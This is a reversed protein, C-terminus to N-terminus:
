GSRLSSMWFCIGGTLWWRPRALAAKNRNLLTSRGTLASLLDGAHAAIRVATHPVQVQLPSSGAAAAMEDYLQGWTVSVEDAVFYTRGAAAPREGARILADVLDTVHVLSFAHERPVAHLAVRGSAQKFAVLFDRDRPGYVAAPRVITIPLDDHACM